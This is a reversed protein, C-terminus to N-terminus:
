FTAQIIDPASGTRPPRPPKEKLEIQSECRPTKSCTGVTSSSDVSYPLSEESRRCDFAEASRIVSSSSFCVRRRSRRFSCDVEVEEIDGNSDMEEEGSPDEDNEVEFLPTIKCSSRGGENVLVPLSVFKGLLQKSSSKAESIVEERKWRKVRKLRSDSIALDKTDKLISYISVDGMLDKSTRRRLRESKMKLMAAHLAANNFDLKAYRGVLDAHLERPLSGDKELLAFAVRDRDFNTMAEQLTEQYHEEMRSMKRIVAEKSDRMKVYKECVATTLAKQKLYLERVARLETVLTTVQDADYTFDVAYTQTKVNRTEIKWKM